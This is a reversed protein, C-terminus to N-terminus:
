SAHPQKRLKQVLSSSVSVMWMVKPAAHDDKRPRALAPLAPMVLGPNRGGSTDPSM